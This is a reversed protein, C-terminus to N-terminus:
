LIGSSRPGLRDAAATLGVVIGTSLVIRAPLEWAPSAPLAEDHPSASEARALLWRVAVLVALAALSLAGLTQSVNQLLVAASLFGALAWALARPWTSHRSAWAYAGCFAGVGGLGALAGPAAGSAFNPGNGVALFLSIPGSVLPLGTLVGSARPGYRRTTWSVLVLLLPMLLLKLSLPSM